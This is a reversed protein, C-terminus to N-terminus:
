FVDVRTRIVKGGYKRIVADGNDEPRDDKGPNKVPPGVIGTSTEAQSGGGSPLPGCPSGSLNIGWGGGIYPTFGPGWGGWGPGGGDPGPGSSSPPPAPIPLCKAADPLAGTDGLIAETMTCICCPAGTLSSLSECAYKFLCRIADPCRVLGVGDAIGSACAVVDFGCSVADWIAKAINFITTDISERRWRNGDCVYYYIVEGKISLDCPEDWGGAASVGDARAAAQLAEAGALSAVQPVGPPWGDVRRRYLVPVVISSQAPLVGIDRILPIIYYDPHQGFNIQTGLAAILGHNTITFEVVSTRGELVPVFAYPPDVTVVPAPVHTEFVAEISIKYRDQIEIQEVTWTYTVLQRPMFAIVETLKGAEVLVPQRFSGHRDARVEVDYYGETLGERLVIGTQDSIEEFVKQGTISDRVTVTANNVRPSGDAFYTFEDNCYIKLDGKLDSIAQFRFGIQVGANNGNIAVAGNYPGLPLDSPPRLALSITAKEGPALTGLSAPSLLSLWPAAPVLVQLGTAPVGGQNMVECEVITQRGRLMGTELFGPNVVLKPQRPIINLNFRVTATRGEATEFVVEPAAQLVSEDSALVSYGVRVGTLANLAPPVGTLQISVNSPAGTVRVSLGTLDTTGLNSLNIQGTVPVTPNINLPIPDPAAVLQQALAVVIPQAVTNDEEVLETVADEADTRVILYYVGPAVIPLRANQTQTYSFPAALGSPVTLDVVLTDGEGLTEDTSLYVRDKWPGSADGFAQNKVTWTVSFDQQAAVSVPANLSQILLNPPRIESTTLTADESTVTQCGDSSIVRFHYTTSPSLGTITMRHATKPATDVFTSQGYQDTLGYEVQSTCPESTIWSVIVSTSRPSVSVNSLTPAVTDVRFTRVAPTADENGSTDRAKVRLVHPGEALGTFQRCTESSWSSWDGGDLKWSYQLQNVPTANDSGTWCFQPDPSCAKGGEVPGSTFWTNPVDQDAPTRFSAVASESQRECSDRSVVRYYYLTDPSLGTITVSHSTRVGGIAPSALGLSPDTGYEVRSTAQRDTLWTITAQSPQASATVNTIVPATLSVLFSRTAPTPDVNGSADHARVSFTHSGASLATFQHCTESSPESWVGGDLRWSYRLQAVPTTNDSGSWCFSASSSCLTSGEGPGQTLFTDPLGTDVLTRVTATESVSERGCADKSRVRFYHLRDPELGTVTMSHSTRLSANVATVSGLSASTGYEVQSTAPEDTTWTVIIDSQGPVASVGTIVPPNLDVTFSRIAPTQDVKGSPDRAAVEFTHAGHKLGTFAKSTAPDFASWEGGDLRWCYQLQSVHATDDSGTFSFTANGDCLRAGDGPGGTIITEPAFVDPTEVTTQVTNSSASSTLNSGSVYAINSIVTGNPVASVTVDFTITASAGAALSGVNVGAAVAPQSGQDPVPNGNLRTSGSVYASNAPIPDTVRVGLAVAQSNNSCTITYSIVDGRAATSVSASKTLTLTAVAVTFSREVPQGVNGALDRARVSFTHPGNGLTVTVTRSTSFASWAGGDFRYSFQLSGSPTLNDTGAYTFTVQPGVTSGEAPGGTISVSPPQGDIAVGTVVATNNATTSEAPSANVISVTYDFLGNLGTTDQDVFVQVASQPNVAVGTVAGLDIVGAGDTASFRVDATGAYDSLNQVTATVRLPTGSAVPPAPTFVVGSPSVGLDFPIPDRVTILATDTGTCGSADSVTLTVVLPEGPPTVQNFTWSAVASTSDPIGDGNFDWQYSVINGLSQSADFTVPFGRVVTRDPGAKAVPPFACAEDLAFVPNLANGWDNFGNGGSTQVMVPKSAVIRLVQGPAVAIYGDANRTYTQSVGTTVNTVTVSTDNYACFIYAGQTQSHLYFERGANGQNITIDDGMDAITGGGELDGAWLAVNGTSTLRYGTRGTGGRYYTQGAQLDVTFLTAGTSTNVCTVTTSEYAFVALAGGGWNHTKFLFEKGMDRGNSSPVTANGNGTNMQLAIRASSVPNSAPPRSRIYYMTGAALPSGTTEWRGYKELQLPGAVPITRAPDAPDPRSITVEADDYAWIVFESTGSLVPIQIIFDTGVRNFGDLAPYFYSGGFSCCDYGLHVFMPKNAHVKFNRITGLAYFDSQGRNLSGSRVPATMNDLNWVEFSTGDSFALLRLQGTDNPNYGYYVPVVSTIIVNDSTASNNGPVSDQPTSATITVTFRYTGSLGTTDVQFQAEASSWAAVNLGEVTGANFTNVGDSATLTVNAIGSEDSLNRVLAKVTVMQGSMVPSDPAVTIDRARVSVDFPVPDQEAVPKLTVNDIAPGGDGTAPTVGEFVLDVQDSLARVWYDKYVWGMNSLSKGTVDFTPSDVLDGGFWVNARKVAPGADPQGSLAFRLHYLRGPQVTVTQRVSGAGSAQHNNLELSQAGRAPQWYSRILAVGLGGATWGPITQGSGYVAWASGIAPEEFDGNLLVSPGGAMVITATSIQGSLVQGTGSADELGAKTAAIAYEGARLDAFTAVGDAGTVASRDVNAPGGTVRVTAGSISKAPSGNTVVQVRLTGTPNNDVNFSRVLPTATINGALDRARVSFTHPGDALTFAASTAGSFASWEGADMRYSYVLQSSPTVNDSGSWVFTVNGLVTSGESPGGTIFVSPPTNDVINLTATPTYRQGTVSNYLYVTHQGAQIFVGPSVEGNWVATFAGSGDPSLPLTKLTGVRAELDLSVGGGVQATITLTRGGGPEFPNPNLTLGTVSAVTLSGTQPFQVGASTYVRITYVGASALDGSIRGDWQAVYTGESGVETFSVQAYSGSPAFIRAYLGAQGADARLTLTVQNAGTPAFPDPNAEVSFVAPRVTVDKYHYYPKQGARAYPRLRFNGAGAYNGYEDKGDWAATYTGSAEVLQIKRTVVGTAVNTVWVDLDLGPQGPVTINLVNGGGPTFENAATTIGHAGRVAFYRTTQAQVNDANRVLVRARYSSHAPIYGEYSSRQVGDWTGRYVGPSVETLATWNLSTGLWEHDIYYQLSQGPDSNVTITVVDQPTGNPAFPDRDVTLSDVDFQISVGQTPYYRVDSAANYVYATYSGPKQYEGSDNRGDWVYTYTGDGNDTMMATRVLTSPSNLYIRIRVPFGSYGRATFTVTAGSRPNFSGTSRELRDIGRVKFSGRVQSEVGSADWVVVECRNSSHDEGYGSYTNGMLGSYSYRSVGDWTVQYVGPTGSEQLPEQYVMWGLWNNQIGYKLGTLGPPAQVTITALQSGTGDPSYPDPDVTIASVSFTINVGVTPYYRRDSAANYIYATYAGPAVAQGGDDTGNWVFTYTGDGNDTMMATRVLTSPNNRYIRIRVNFGSYGRATFTVNGTVAAFSSKDRELRDVGRVKFYGRVISEQGNADWVVVDCRNSSHDEGYGSYTNGMLGSYSYRSVGDWTVQYVGPTGTEQLPEQYVMWGLWNNYIGYKLGTQGAAANVTITATQGPEGTGDPSFPNPAVSIADVTYLLRLSTSANYYQVGSAANLVQLRYDGTPQIENAANRGNWSFVYQGNGTPTMPFEGVLAGDSSRTIRVLLSLGDYGTATFTAFEGSRPEIESKDRSLAWVGRVKFYASAPSTLQTGDPEWLVVYSQNYSHDEGYGGYNSGMYGSYNYRSVGNWSVEYVGPSSPAPLNEQYVMWGLWNNYIGWKYNGSELPTAQIRIQVMNGATGDPVFPSPTIEASIFRPKRSIVEVDGWPGIYSSTALNFVRFSYVGTEVLQNSDNKGNWVCSYVGPSTETLAISSRVVTTRDSRTVRMALTAVGATGEATLTTTQNEDAYFASPSASVSTISTQGTAPASCCLALFVAVIAIGPLCSRKIREKEEIM